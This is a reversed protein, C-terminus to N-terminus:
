RRGDCTGDLVTTRQGQEFYPAEHVFDLWRIAGAGVEKGVIRTQQASTDRSKVLAAGSGLRLGSAAARDEGGM